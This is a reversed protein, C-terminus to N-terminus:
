GESSYLIISFDAVAGQESPNKLHEM